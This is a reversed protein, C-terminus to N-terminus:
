KVDPYKPVKLVPYHHEPSAVDIKVPKYKGTHLSVGKLTLDEKEKKTLLTM